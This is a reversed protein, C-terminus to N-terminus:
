SDRGRTGGSFDEHTIEYWVGVPAGPYRHEAFDADRLYRM